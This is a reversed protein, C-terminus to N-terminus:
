TAACEGAAGLNITRQANEILRDYTIISIRTLHSNLSRITEDVKERPAGSSSFSANGIVVTMSARRCDIELDVLIQARKEDLERLYNIAQGVARNIEAGVILHNRQITVLGKINARKLEVGHLTGDPRLLALDLQDHLTLSRRVTGPLFEGGFIWTMKEALKQLDAETCEPDEVATRLEDLDAQQRARQFLTALLQAEDLELMAAATAPKNELVALLNRITKTAEQSSHPQLQLSIHHANNFGDQIDLPIPVGSLQHLLFLPTRTNVTHPRCAHGIDRAGTAVWGAISSDPDVAFEGLYMCENQRAVFVRLPIGLRQHALAALNDYSPDESWQAKGPAVLMTRQWRPALEDASGIDLFLFSNPTRGSAGVTIRPNGGYVEHLERRQVVSGPPINWATPMVDAPQVEHLLQKLRCWQEDTLDVAVLKQVENTLRAHMVVNQLGAAQLTPGTVPAAFSLETLSLRVELSVKDRALMLALAWRHSGKEVPEASCVKGTAVVGGGRGKRWLLVEDGVKIELTTIATPAADWGADDRLMARSLESVSTKTETALLWYRM